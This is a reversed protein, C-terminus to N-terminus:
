PLYKRRFAPINTHCYGKMYCFSYFSKFATSITQRTTQSFNNNNPPEFLYREFDDATVEELYAPRNFRQSLYHNFPVLFRSYNTITKPSRDTAQLHELFLEIADIFKM